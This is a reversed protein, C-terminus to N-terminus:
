PLRSAAEEPTINTNFLLQTFFESPIIKNQVICAQEFQEKWQEFTM